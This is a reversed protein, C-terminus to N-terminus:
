NKNYVAKLFDGVLYAILKGTKNDAKIHSLIPAGEAIHFYAPKLETACRHVFQRAQVASIGCSTRASAPINTIADLDLEIGCYGERTFGICKEIAGTFNVKERIFIDEYSEYMLFDSNANFKDLITKLNYQEHIGLVAYKHLAGEAFAYSFGNGSHRGELARFDTHADCNIVNIGQKSTKACKRLAENVAKILPYANNHGGGIVIPIKGCQVIMEVTEVVRADVYEVLKRLKEIDQDTKGLGKSQEMLDDVRVCGMVTTKESPLSDNHQINLISELAPLWASSAGPRGYNARVGIDEPIGLLVFRIDSDNLFSQYNSESGPTPIQSKLPMKIREGLKCEGDRKRTLKEIDSAIYFNCRHTM